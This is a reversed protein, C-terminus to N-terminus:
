LNQCKKCEEIEEINDSIDSLELDPLCSLDEKKNQLNVLDQADQKIKKQEEKTLNQKINELKEQELKELKNQYDLDPELILTLVNKTNLFYKNILDEFFSETKIKNKIIEINKNFNLATFSDGQHLWPDLFRFCLKLGYPYPSNSVEKYDYEIQHLASEIIKQNIKNSVLDKFVQYILKEIKKVDNKQIDKLGCSFHTQKFESSFGSLDILDSGLGSSLLAQKLPSAPNNLLINELIELGLIELDNNIDSTLWTLCIQYKKDLNDKEQESLNYKATIQKKKSWQPILKIETNLKLYSFDQLYNDNIFKLHEELPFNGYTYIFANSPHYYKQQFQKLEQYTLNIIEQPDGGSNYQYPTNSYLNQTIIESMLRNSSSLVGKMENFVIGKFKLKENEDFELCWGEQKFNLESLNPYFVADLYVDLLNYFDKKNSTIFPYGTWDNSTFANIFSSLSRKLISFFPDRVPFKRSGTLTLHELIHPTGKSNEPLTKFVIFFCNNIDQNALHIYKTKTILHELEYYEIALDPLSQINKIIFNHINQNIQYSM